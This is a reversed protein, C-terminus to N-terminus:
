GRNWELSFRHRFSRKRSVAAATMVGALLIAVVLFVSALWRVFRKGFV